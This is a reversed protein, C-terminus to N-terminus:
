NEQAYNKNNRKLDSIYKLRRIESIGELMGDLREYIDSLRECYTHDDEDLTIKKLETM